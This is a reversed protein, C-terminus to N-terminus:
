TRTHTQNRRQTASPATVAGESDSETKAQAVAPGAALVATSLALAFVARDSTVARSYIAQIRTAM